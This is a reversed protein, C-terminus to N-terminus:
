GQAENITIRLALKIPFQRRKFSFPVTADSPFLDIRPLLLRQGVNRGTIIELDLSNQYMRRVILRTGNLLAEMIKLNRSLMVVAGEKLTLEHSSLGTMELSDLFQSPFQLLESEDETILTNV